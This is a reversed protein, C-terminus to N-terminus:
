DEFSKKVVWNKGVLQMFEFQGRNKKRVMYVYDNIGAPFAEIERRSSGYKWQTSIQYYRYVSAHKPHKAMIDFCGWIDNRNFRSRIARNTIYGNKILIKDLEREIRSGKAARNM